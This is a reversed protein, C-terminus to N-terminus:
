RSLGRLEAAIQKLKALFIDIEQPTNLYSLSVRIAGTLADGSLGMSKLVHSAENRRSHCASGTSVYIDEAELSHLLVEGRNVGECWINVIHPAAADGGPGNIHVKNLGRLGQLLKQKLKALTSDNSDLRAGALAAAKGLGAIGPVNETGARQLVEQEGGVLLAKLQVNRDIYLAGVGKPGHAKHASISLMDIGTEKPRLLLKGFSQVADVHFFAQPTSSKIIRALENVPQISGVENNVSMVSVLITEPTLLEQLQSPDM